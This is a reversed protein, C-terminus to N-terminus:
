TDGAEDDTNTKAPSPKVRKKVLSYSFCLCDGGEVAARAAKEAETHRKVGQAHEVHTDNRAPFIPRRAKVVPRTREERAIVEGASPGTRTVRAEADRICRTGKARDELSHPTLLM